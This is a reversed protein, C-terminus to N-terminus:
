FPFVLIPQQLKYTCLPDVCHTFPFFLASTTLDPENLWDTSDQSKNPNPDYDTSSHASKDKRLTQIAKRQTVREFHAFKTPLNRINRAM